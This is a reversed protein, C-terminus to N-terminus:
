RGAAAFSCARVEEETSLAGLDYAISPTRSERQPLDVNDILTATDGGVGGADGTESEVESGQRRREVPVLSTLSATSNYGWGEAMELPQTEDITGEFNGLNEKSNHDSGGFTETDTDPPSPLEQPWGRQAALGAGM